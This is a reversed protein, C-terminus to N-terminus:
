ATDLLRRISDLESVVASLRARAEGVPNPDAGKGSGSWYRVVQEVKELWFERETGPPIDLGLRGRGLGDAFGDGATHTTKQVVLASLLPRGREHEYESINGLATGIGRYRRPKWRRQDPDAAACLDGYIILASRPFQPDANRAREILVQRLRQEDADLETM